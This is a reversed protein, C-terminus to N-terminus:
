IAVVTFEDRSDLDVRGLKEVHIDVIKRLRLTDTIHLTAVAIAVMEGFRGVVQVAERGRIDVKAAQGILQVSFVVVYKNAMERYKALHAKVKPTLNSAM